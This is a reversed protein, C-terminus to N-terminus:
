RPEDSGEHSSGKGVTPEERKLGSEETELLVVKAGEKLKGRTETVVQEDETLGDTIEAYDTTLYGLRIPTVHVTQEATVTFVAEFTGDGDLDQLATTPVVMADEKEFVTIEARAFMGPLLAGKENPVRVKATLTRSKGEIVPTMQEITGEFESGQFADVTIKAKQGLKVKEIDREIVGLEVLVSSVDALVGLTTQPTVYEGPNVELSGIVGGVPARLSTKGWEAQALAVEKLATDVQAKAQAFEAQAEELKPKIIAGLQYLREQMELRKSIVKAQAEAAALKSQAYEIRLQADHDDLVAIIEGAEVVEGEKFSIAKIVGNVEFKLPIEAQGRITGTMPLTDAFKVRSVKFTRVQVPLEEPAAGQPTTAPQGPPMQVVSPRGLWAPGTKMWLLGGGIVLAVVVLLVLLRKPM